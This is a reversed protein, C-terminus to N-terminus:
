NCFEEKYFIRFKTYDIFDENVMSEAIEAEAEFPDSRNYGSRTLYNTEFIRSGDILYQVYHTLEHRVIRQDWGERWFIIFPNKNKDVSFQGYLGGPKSCSSQRCIIKLNPIKCAKIIYNTFEKVTEPKTFTNSFKKVKKYNISM